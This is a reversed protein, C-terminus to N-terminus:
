SAKAMQEEDIIEQALDLCTGCDPIDGLLEYAEHASKVGSRAIARIQSERYGNCICVYM